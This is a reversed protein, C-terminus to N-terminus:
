HVQAELDAVRVELHKVVSCLEEIAQEFYKTAERLDDARKARAAYSKADSLSM